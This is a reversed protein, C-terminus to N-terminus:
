TKGMKSKITPKIVGNIFGEVPKIIKSTSQGIMVVNEIRNNLFAFTKAHDADDNQQLWYTMTAGIVGSLLGRKTYRNYDTSQDGARTWIVDATRWTVKAGLRAHQPMLLKKFAMQVAEKHPSLIEIRKEVATRITARIKLDETNVSQLADMMKQDAWQAFYDIFDAEGRPFLAIVLEKDIKLADCATEFTEVTWGDFPVHKLGEELIQQKQQEINM